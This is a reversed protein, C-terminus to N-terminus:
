LLLLFSDHATDKGAVLVGVHVLKLRLSQLQSFSYTMTTGVPAPINGDIIGDESVLSQTDNADVTAGLGKHIVLPRDKQCDIALDIVVPDQALLDFPIDGEFSMRVAFDDKMQYSVRMMTHTATIVLSLM